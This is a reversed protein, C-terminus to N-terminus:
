EGPGLEKLKQSKSINFPIEFSQSNWERLSLSSTMGFTQSSSVKSWTRLTKWLQILRRAHTISFPHSYMISSIRFLKRAQRSEWFRIPPPVNRWVEYTLQRPSIVTGLKSRVIGPSAGYTMPAHIFQLPHSTLWRWMLFFHKETIPYEHCLNSEDPIPHMIGDRIQFQIRSSCPKLPWRRLVAEPHLPFHITRNDVLILTHTLVTIPWLLQMYGDTLAV